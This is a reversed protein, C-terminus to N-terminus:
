SLKADVSNPRGEKVTLPLHAGWGKAMAQVDAMPDSAKATENRIACRAKDVSFLAQASIRARETITATKAMRQQTFAVLAGTLDNKGQTLSRSLHWADEL